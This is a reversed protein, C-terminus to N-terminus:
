NPREIWDDFENRNPDIWNMSKGAPHGASTKKFRDMLGDIFDWVKSRVRRQPEDAHLLREETGMKKASARSAAVSAESNNWQTVTNLFDRSSSVLSGLEPIVPIPSPGGTSVGSPSSGSASDAGSNLSLLPNLGAARLDEVERQHGTNVLREQFSRNIDAQQASFQEAKRNEAIQYLWQQDTNAQNARNTQQSSAYAGAASALGAIAIGAGAGMAM